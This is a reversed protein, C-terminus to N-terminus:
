ENFPLLFYGERCLGNFWFLSFCGNKVTDLSVWDEEFTYAKGNIFLFHDGKHVGSGCM